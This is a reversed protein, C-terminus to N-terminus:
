VDTYNYELPATSVFGHSQFTQRHAKNHSCSICLSSNEKTKRVLLSFTRILHQAIKSSPHGLQKHWEDTTTCEHVYAIVPKSAMTMTEPLPYVGDECAGKLLTAGTIRDSGDGLLVEDTGDYKSYISLNSLNPTMNHSAALDVLWKSDKSKSSAAYNASFNSSNRKSCTKATHGLQDCLQCKPKYKRFSSNYTNQKTSDRIKSYFRQGNKGVHFHRHQTFNEISVLPQMTQQELRHLYSEHGILLDHLEEFRIPHERARIPAAIEKFDPGLGNLVYLTLDDNTVLHDIRSLEDTTLKIAKLFETVTRSGSHNLTLDEKLEIACTLSKGAYLCTLKNWAEYSTKCLALLPTITTSTSALLAHLILKDQRIWHSNAAKSVVSNETDIAPCHPPLTTKSSIYLECRMMFVNNELSISWEISSLSLSDDEVDLLAFCHLTLHVMCRWSLWRYAHIRMFPDINHCLSFVSVATTANKMYGAALIITSNYRIELSSMGILGGSSTPSYLRKCQVELHVVYGLLIGAPLGIIYYSGLNVFAVMSQVGAGVAVGTLVPQVSNLLISFALLVALSSVTEAVEEDSTLFRSIEKGFILCLVWILVGIIISTSLIIEVSFKAAKPNGRGLENAVRVCAAGLFGFSLMFEWTLINHCLSFASIATTANKVYGAALIIISNYWIELCIMFGSSISLKVVPLIDAFAAKTFGKWTNPCWGGFIYVLLGIVLSWTSITLAGMAGATGLELKNVFIWSLLIHLVFSIASFWGVVKNKLQAQLYMQITLSFVLYYVYPIFWPSMNGAAIAVDEEQGLLRFIPAAFIVLPLLITAAAGDVIWSRQLYIGMMHDHRAGFAQGCLTETASSMGILIGNIFRVIFSQLLAFAALELKGIHGLFAQTVVIMGFSTVRAVMAPFAIKWIMKSETWIRTKLDVNSLEEPVLLSEQISNDM